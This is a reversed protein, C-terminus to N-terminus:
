LSSPLLSTGLPVRVPHEREKVCMLRLKAARPDLESESGGAQRNLERESM